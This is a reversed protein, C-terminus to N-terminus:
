YYGQERLAQQIERVKENPAWHQASYQMDGVPDYSRPPRTEGPLQALAPPGHGGGIRAPTRPSDCTEYCRGGSAYSPAHSSSPEQSDGPLSSADTSSPAKSM